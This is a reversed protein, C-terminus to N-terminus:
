TDIETMKPETPRVPRCHVSNIEVLGKETLRERSENFRNSQLESAIRWDTILVWADNTDRGGSTLTEMHDDYLRCLTGLAKAQNAGLKHDAKTAGVEVAAEVAVASRLYTGRDVVKRGDAGTLEVSELRFGIDSFPESEKSKGCFLRGAGGQVRDLGIEFDMAARIASSGRARDSPGHGTHHVILVTAKFPRRLYQDIHKIVLGIDKSSNEDGAMSRALTDIIILPPNTGKCLSKISAELSAAEVPDSLDAARESVHFRDRPLTINYHQEWAKLRRKLGNYGEGAIYIVSGKRVIDFGHWSKGTVVCCAWDLAVFSKGGASPGFLMGLSDSEMLGHIVWDPATINAALEAGDVFKMLRSAVLAAFAKVEATTIVPSQLATM